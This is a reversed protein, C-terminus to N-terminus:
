KVLVGREIWGRPDLWAGIGAQAGTGTWYRRYRGQTVVGHHSERIASYQLFEGFVCERPARPAIL